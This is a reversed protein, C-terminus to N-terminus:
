AGKLTEVMKEVIGILEALLEDRKEQPAIFETVRSRGSKEGYRSIRM